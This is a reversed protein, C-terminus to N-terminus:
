EMGSHTIEPNWEQTISTTDSQCDNEAQTFYNAFTTEKLSGGSKTRNRQLDVGPTLEAASMARKVRTEIETSNPIQSWSQADDLGSDSGKRQADSDSSSDPM